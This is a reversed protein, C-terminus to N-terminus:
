RLVYRSSDESVAELRHLVLESTEAIENSGAVYYDARPPKGLDADNSKKTAM